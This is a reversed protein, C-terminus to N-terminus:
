LLHSGEVNESFTRTPWMDQIVAEPMEKSGVPLSWTFGTGLQRFVDINTEHYRTFTSRAEDIVDVFSQADDGPLCRIMEGDDNNSLIAEILSPLEHPAFERRVLRGYATVNSTSFFPDPLL